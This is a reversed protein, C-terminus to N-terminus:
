RGAHFHEPQMALCTDDHSQVLDFELAAGPLVRRFFYRCALLKAEYFSRDSGGAQPLKRHAVAAQRLWLWGLVVHGAAELYNTANALAAAENPCSLCADTARRWHDIMRELEQAWGSLEPEQVAGTSERMLRFLLELGRGGDLRVKRGLLDLGQIGYAGEHIHNLRNDRYFREVPHDRTYGAGGLVQIALKNAELCHEAPWSKAIPTLVQLLLELDAAEAQTAAAAKRDVLIACYIILALAGEVAVKQALLMRRVDAHCIIPVQPSAADKQGPLRGQRRESAYDLSYLYGALASTVAGHGVSIRAENMMHFMCRLGQHPEGLLYGITPGREGFNLLCNTTGRQGMKHNLGVLTINNSAGSVGRRDVRLKPVIFLSIGKVGPPGGPIKALLMHVINEALDHEGGSIWMKTGIIRYTGDAVPEARTTIDALSSGAQPESLCMTGFWRGQLMPPLFIAKQSADGWAELLHAAAITLMSYNALAQNAASFMGNIAVSVTYPLQLGGVSEDFTQAFLGADAFARLAPGAAPPVRVTGNVFSPEEADLIAAAPLYHEQALSQAADLMIELQTRDMHAFRATQFLSEIGELEYLLFDLDRRSVIVSM